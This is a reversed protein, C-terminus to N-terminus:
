SLPQGTIKRAAPTKRATTEDQTCAIAALLLVVARCLLLNHKMKSM